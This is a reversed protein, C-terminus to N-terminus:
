TLNFRDLGEWMSFVAAFIQWASPQVSEETKFPVRFKTLLMYKAVAM